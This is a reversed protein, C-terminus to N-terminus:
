PINSATPRKAKMEFFKTVKDRYREYQRFALYVTKYPVITNGDEWIGKPPMELCATLENSTIDLFPRNKIGLFGAAADIEFLAAHWTEYDILWADPSNYQPPNTRLLKLGLTWVIEDNKKFRSQIDGADLADLLQIFTRKLWARDSLLSTLNSRLSALAEANQKSETTTQVISERYEALRGSVEKILDVTRETNQRLEPIELRTTEITRSLEAMKKDVRAIETARTTAQESTQNALQEISKHLGNELDSIRKDTYASAAVRTKRREPSWFSLTLYILVAIIFWTQPNTAVSDVGATFGPWRSEIQQWFLGLLLFLAASSGFGIRRTLTEAKVTEFGAGVALSLWFLLIALENHEM